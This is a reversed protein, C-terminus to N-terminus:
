IIRKEVVDWNIINWFSNVYDARRNQYKLYYAHEWVDLGILIKMKNQPEKSANMLPNEQNPTNVIKLQNNQLIVWCWGSGFISTAMKTYTAWFNEISGFSKIALAKFNDGVSTGVKLHEWFFSHNWHGGGHNRLVPILDKSQKDLDLFLEELSKNLAAPEKALGENLKTIYAQHHKTHHIEMTQADIYPELANYAYPLKPLEYKGNVPRIEDPVLYDNPQNAKLVKGTAILGVSLGFATRLFEKREM